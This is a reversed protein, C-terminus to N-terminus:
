PKRRLVLERLTEPEDLQLMVPLARVAKSLAALGAAGAIRALDKETTVLVLNKNAAETVLEDADLASYRYHDPYARTVPAPIGAEALTAFFKEPNGIGAFALVQNGALSAVADAEAELMARLVPIHQEAAATIVATASASPEGIVLLAHTRGLQANLPARMPGAPIIRGNGIGRGGDIVIIAIDKHLSPNQFGDDMVIVTAGSTRALEAGAVRDRSVITPAIRALLLPEDGVDSARHRISDVRVPGALKGGYGRSLFFVRQGADALLRGVCLAVPTKGAGGVTLNGICIVPVGASRGAFRLRLAAIAGYLATFPALLTSLIGPERWWFSPERM